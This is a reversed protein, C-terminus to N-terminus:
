RWSRCRMTRCWRACTCCSGRLKSQTVLTSSAARRRPSTSATSRGAAIASPVRTCIRMQRWLRTRSVPVNELLIRREPEYHRQVDQMTQRISAILGEKREQVCGVAEARCDAGGANRTAAVTPRVDTALPHGTGWPLKELFDLALSAMCMVDGLATTGDPPPKEVKPRGSLQPDALWEGLTEYFQLATSLDASLPLPASLILPRVVHVCASTHQHHHPDM